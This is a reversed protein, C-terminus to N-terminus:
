NQSESKYKELISKHYDIVQNRLWAPKKIIAQGENFRRFYREVHQKSCTFYYLYGGEVPKIKSYPPRQLYIQRYAAHGDENLFVCCEQDDNIEYAPSIREMDDLHRRVTEDPVIDATTEIIGTMRNLRYSKARLRGKKDTEACLLYNFIEEPGHAIRCPFVTHVKNLNGAISFSIPQEKNIAEQLADYREKYIIQERIYSPNKLYSQFIRVFSNSSSEEPNTKTIQEIVPWTTKTPKLAIRETKKGSKDEHAKTLGQRIERALSPVDDITTSKQQKKGETETITIKIRNGLIDSITKLDDSIEDQYQKYHGMILNGLFRNFNIDINNAKFVEFHRADAELKTKMSEPLYICIKELKDSNDYVFHGDKIDVGMFLTHM